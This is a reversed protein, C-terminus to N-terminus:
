AIVDGNETILFVQDAAYVADEGTPRFDDAYLINVVRGFDRSKTAEIVRMLKPTRRFWEGRVRSERFVDHLEKEWQSLCWIKALISLEVPSSVQLCSLRRKPWASYGIKVPSDGDAEGIFYLFAHRDEGRRSRYGDDGFERKQLFPAVSPIHLPQVSTRQTRVIPFRLRFNGPTAPATLVNVM